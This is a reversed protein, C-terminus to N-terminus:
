GTDDALLMTGTGFSQRRPRFGSAGCSGHYWRREPASRPACNQGVGEAGLGSALRYWLRRVACSAAAERCRASCPGGPPTFSCVTGGTCASPPVWFLVSEDPAVAVSERARDAATMASPLPRPDASGGGSYSSGRSAANSWTFTSRLSSHKSAPCMGSGAPSAILAVSGARCSSEAALM